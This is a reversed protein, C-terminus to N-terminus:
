RFGASTSAIGSIITASATATTSSTFASKKKWVRGLNSSVAVRILDVPEANSLLQDAGAVLEVAYPPVAQSLDLAIQGRDAALVGLAHLVTRLMGHHGQARRHAPGSRVDGLLLRPALDRCFRFRKIPGGGCAPPM